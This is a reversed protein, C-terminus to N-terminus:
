ARSLKLEIENMMGHGTKYISSVAVFFIYHRDQFQYGSM